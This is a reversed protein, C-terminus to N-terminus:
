KSDKVQKGKAKPILNPQNNRIWFRIPLKGKSEQWRPYLLSSTALVNFLFFDWLFRWSQGELARLLASRRDDVLKLICNPFSQRHILICSHASVVVLFPSLILDSILLHFHNNPVSLAWKFDSTSHTDQVSWHFSPYSRFTSSCLLFFLFFILSFLAFRSFSSDTKM